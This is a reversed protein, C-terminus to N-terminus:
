SKKSIKRHIKNKGNRNFKQRLVFDTFPTKGDWEISDEVPEKASELVQQEFEPTFGNETVRPYLADRLTDRILESISAYGRKSLMKKADLYMSRPLSINITSNM